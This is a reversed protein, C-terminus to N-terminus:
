NMFLRQFGLVSVSFQSSFVSFEHSVGENEEVDVARQQRRAPGGALGHQRRERRDISPFGAVSVRM